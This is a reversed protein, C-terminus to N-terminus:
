WIIYFSFVSGDCILSKLTEEGCSDYLAWGEAIIVNLGATCNDYYIKRQVCERFLICVYMCVTTMKTEDFIQYTHAREMHFYIEAVCKNADVYMHM